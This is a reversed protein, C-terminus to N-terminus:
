PDQELGCGKRAILKKFTQCFRDKSGRAHAARENGLKEDVASRAHDSYAAVVLEKVVNLPLQFSRGCLDGNLLAQDGQFTVHQTM